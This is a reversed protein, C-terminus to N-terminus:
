PHESLKANLHAASMETAEGTPMGTRFSQTWFTIDPPRKQAPLAVIASGQQGDPLAAELSTVGISPAGTALSLGRAFAVGVRIGTFSGPGTVVAFRDIEGLTTETRQLLRDVLGPLQADQGRTMPVLTEALIEEGRVLAVDCAPGATHIGLVIM